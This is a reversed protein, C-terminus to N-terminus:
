CKRKNKAKLNMDSLVTSKLRAWIIKIYLLYLNLRKKRVTRKIVDSKERRLLLNSIIVSSQMEGWFLMALVCLYSAPFDKEGNAAVKKQMM